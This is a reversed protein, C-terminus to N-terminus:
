LILSLVVEHDLFGFILFIDQLVSIWMGRRYEQLSMSVGSYMMGNNVTTLIHFYAQSSGASSHVFFILYMHM